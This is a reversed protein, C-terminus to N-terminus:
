VLCGVEGECGDLSLSLCLSCVLVLSSRCLGTLSEERTDREWHAGGKWVTPPNPSSVRLIDSEQFIIATIGNSNNLFAM